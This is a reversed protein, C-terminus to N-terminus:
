MGMDQTGCGNKVKKKESLLCKLEGTEFIIKYLRNTSRKVKMLLVGQGDRVWLFDGNLTIKYGDEALQGLSIINSRLSPIYYVERLIQEGGAKCRVAVSGKGMIQVISGDGFKVQGKIEENLEKFKSRQGSMHNSAGNDLYWLNSANANGEDGKNLKPTVNEENILMINEENECETLLLTPEDDPIQAINM